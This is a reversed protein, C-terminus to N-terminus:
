ENSKLHEEFKADPVAEIRQGRRAFEEQVKGVNQLDQESLSNKLLVVFRAPLKANATPDNRFAQGSSAYYRYAQLKRRLDSLSGESSVSEDLVLYLFLQGDTSRIRVIDIDGPSELGGAWALGIAQSLFIAMAAIVNRIHNM